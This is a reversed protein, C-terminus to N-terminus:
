LCALKSLALAFVKTVRVQLMSNTNRAFEVLVDFGDFLAKAVIFNCSPFLWSSYSFSIELPKM